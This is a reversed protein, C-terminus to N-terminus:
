NRKIDQKTHTRFCFLFFLFSLSEGQESEAVREAREGGERGEQLPGGGGCRELDFGCQAQCFSEFREGSRRPHEPAWCWLGGGRHCEGITLLLSKILQSCISFSSAVLLRALM